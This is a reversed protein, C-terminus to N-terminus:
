AKTGGQCRFLVFSWGSRLALTATRRCSNGFNRCREISHSEAKPGFAACHLAEHIPLLTWVVAFPASACWYACKISLPAEKPEVEVLLCGFTM